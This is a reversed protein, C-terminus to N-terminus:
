KGSCMTGTGLSCSQSSNLQSRYVMETWGEGAKSPLCLVILKQFKQCTQKGGRKKHKRSITFSVQTDM